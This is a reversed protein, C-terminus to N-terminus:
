AKTGKTPNEIAAKKEAVRSENDATWTEFDKGYRFLAFVDLCKRAIGELPLPCEPVHKVVTGTDDRLAVSLFSRIYKASLVALGIQVKQAFDFEGHESELRAMGDMDLRITFGEGFEPADVEALFKNATM